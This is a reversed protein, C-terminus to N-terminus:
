MINDDSQPLIAEASNAKQALYQNAVCASVVIVLIHNTLQQRNAHKNSTQHPTPTFHVRFSCTIHGAQMRHRHMKQHYYQLLHNFPHLLIHQHMSGCTRGASWLSASVLRCGFRHAASLPAIPKRLLARAIRVLLLKGLPLMRGQRAQIIRTTNTVNTVRHDHQLARLVEVVREVVAKLKM